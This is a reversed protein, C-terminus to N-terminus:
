EHNVVKTTSIIILRVGHVDQFSRGTVEVHLEPADLLESIECPTCLVDHMEFMVSIGKRDVFEFRLGHRTTKRIDVQDAPVTTTYGLEKEIRKILRTIPSAAARTKATEGPRVESAWHQGDWKRITKTTTDYWLQGFRPNAPPSTDNKKKLKRGSM